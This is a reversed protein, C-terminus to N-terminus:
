PCLMMFISVLPPPPKEEEQPKTLINLINYPESFYSMNEQVSLEYLRALSERLSWVSPKETKHPPTEFYPRVLCPRFSKTILHPLSVGTMAASLDSDGLSKSLYQLLRLPLAQPCERARSWCMHSSHGWLIARCGDSPYPFLAAV